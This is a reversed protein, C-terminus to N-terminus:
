MSFPRCVKSKVQQFRLWVTRKNKPVDNISTIKKDNSCSLLDIEDQNIFWAPVKEHYKTWLVQALCVLGYGLAAGLLGALVYIAAISLQHLAHLRWIIYYSFLLPPFTLPFRIVNHIVSKETNIPWWGSHYVKHTSNDMDLLFPKFLYDIFDTIAGKMGIVLAFAWLGLRILWYILFIPIQITYAFLRQKRFDCQDIINTNSLMFQVWMRELSSPPPAFCDSPVIVNIPISPESVSKYLDLFWDSYYKGDDNIVGRTYRSDSRQLYLRATKKNEVIFAFIKNADDSRFETYAVYDRLSAITRYEKRPANWRIAEEPMEPATCIVIYPDKWGKEAMANLTDISVCWGVSVTSDQIETNAIHLELM